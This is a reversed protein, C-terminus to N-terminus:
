GYQTCLLWQPQQQMPTLGLMHLARELKRDWTDTVTLLMQPTIIKAEGQGVRYESGQAILLTQPYELHGHYTLEVGLKEDTKRRHARREDLTATDDLPPLATARLEQLAAEEFSDECPDYWSTRLEGHEGAEQVRWGHDDGGLGYGYVILASVSRGM